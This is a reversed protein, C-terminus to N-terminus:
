SCPSCFSWSNWALWGEAARTARGAEATAPDHCLLTLRVYILGRRMRCSVTAPSRLTKVLLLHRPDSRRPHVTSTAVPPQSPAVARDKVGDGAPGCCSRLLVRGMFSPM